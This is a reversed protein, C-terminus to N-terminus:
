DADIRDKSLFRYVVAWIQNLCSHYTPEVAEPKFKEYDIDEIAKRMGEAFASKTTYFRYEYDMEPTSQIASYCGRRMYDACFVKLHSRVRSRVQIDYKKRVSPSVKDAPFTAPMLLSDKTFIWM